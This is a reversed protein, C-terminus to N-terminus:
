HDLHRHERHFARAIDYLRQRTTDALAMRDLVQSLESWSYADLKAGLWAMTMALGRTVRNDTIVVVTCRTRMFAEISRRRQAADVGAAGACLMLCISPRHTAIADVFGTWIGDPVPEPITLSVMVDEVLIWRHPEM